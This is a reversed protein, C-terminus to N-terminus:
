AIFVLNWLIESEPVVSANDAASSSRSGNYAAM